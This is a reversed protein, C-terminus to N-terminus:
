ENMRREHWKSKEKKMMEFPWDKDTPETYNWQTLPGYLKRYTELEEQMWEYLFKPITITKLPTEEKKIFSKKFTELYDTVRESESTAM